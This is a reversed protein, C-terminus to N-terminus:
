ATDTQPSRGRGLSPTESAGCGPMPMVFAILRGAAIM